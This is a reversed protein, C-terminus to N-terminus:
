RAPKKRWISWSREAFRLAAGAHLAGAPEHRLQARPIDFDKRGICFAAQCEAATRGYGPTRGYVYVMQADLAGDVVQPM